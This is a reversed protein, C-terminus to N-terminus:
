NKVISIGGSMTNIDLSCAGSGCVYDGDDNRTDFGCNMEGSLSDFSARFSSEAPIALTVAGSVSDIDLDGPCKTLSLDVTGSVTDADLEDFGGYISMRGSVTEFSGKKFDGGNFNIEGSVNEISVSDASLGSVSCRASTCELSLSELACGEPLEIVLDKDRGNGINIWPLVYSSKKPEISLTGDSLLWHLKDEEKLSDDGAEYFRIESGSGNMVTVSGGAWDINIRRVDAAPVSSGGANYLSANEYSFLSGSGLAEGLGAAPIGFVGRGTLLSILLMTLLIATFSWAAIRIIASTKM